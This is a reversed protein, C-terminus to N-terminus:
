PPSLQEPRFTRETDGSKLYTRFAALTFRVDNKCKPMKWVVHSEGDRAALRRQEYDEGHAFADLRNPLVRKVLAGLGYIGRWGCLDTHPIRWLSNAVQDAGCVHELVIMDCVLGNYTVLEDAKALTALLRPADQPGFELYRGRATDHVVACNFQLSKDQFCSRASETELWGWRPDWFWSSETDFCMRRIPSPM